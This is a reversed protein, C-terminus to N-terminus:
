AASLLSISSSAGSRNSANTGTLIKCKNLGPIIRSQRKCVIRKLEGPYIPAQGTNDHNEIRNLPIPFV